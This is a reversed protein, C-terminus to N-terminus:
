KKPAPAPAAPAASTAALLKKFKDKADDTLDYKGETDKHCDDCDFKVGAAKGAKVMDKMAKKAGKIGGETCAKVIPSDGKTAIVCKGDGQAFVVGGALLIAGLSGVVLTGRLMRVM